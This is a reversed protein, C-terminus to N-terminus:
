IDTTLFTPQDFTDSAILRRAVDAAELAFLPSIEIPVDDGITAGAARIWRRHLAQMATRCTSPSDAGDHNKVPNFEAARDAEVILSRKAAPLLDFIFQEFKFANPQDPSVLRGTEDVFPVIKRAFHFPFAEGGIAFPELFALRFAHIATNGAWLRLRGEEDQQAAIDAPLDSYEIIKSHGDVSVAVGMKEEASRKAVVKTSVDAEHIAHWGLFAPDCVQTTPNDIQHYFLTTIGRNLLEAMLGSHALAGLMGGHGDPSLALQGPGSLLARQTEADFAPVSGQQFFYVQDESLGFGDHRDFFEVTAAHTADSTMVCYPIARGAQRGRALVQECFIQFLSHGSVPGIPFMGKPRDFGLRTGQGGAVVVSAVQGAQLMDLGRQRARSWAAVDEGAMPQRVVHEPPAAQQAENSRRDQAHAAIGLPDSLLGRFLQWDIEMLQRTFQRQQSRSLTERHRWLHEQGAAYLRARLAEDDNSM